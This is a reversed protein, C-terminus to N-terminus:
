FVIQSAGAILPEIDEGPRHSQFRVPAALAPFPKM